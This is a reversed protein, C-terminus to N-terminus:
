FVRELHTQTPPAELKTGGYKQSDATSRKNPNSQQTAPRKKDQENRKHSAQFNVNKKAAQLRLEKEHMNTMFPLVKGLLDEDDLSRGMGKYTNQWEIPM